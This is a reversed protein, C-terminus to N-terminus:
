KKTKAEVTVRGELVIVTTTGNEYVTILLESNIGTVTASSSKIKIGPIGAGIKKVHAIIGNSIFLTDVSKLEIYGGTTAPPVVSLGVKLLNSCDKEGAKKLYIRADYSIGQAYVRDGAKLNILSIRESKLSLEKSLIPMPLIDLKSCLWLFARVM